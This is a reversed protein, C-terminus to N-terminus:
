GGRRPSLRTSSGERPRKYPLIKGRPLLRTFFKQWITRIKKNPTEREKEKLPHFFHGKRQTTERTLSNAMKTFSMIFKKMRRKMQGSYYISM